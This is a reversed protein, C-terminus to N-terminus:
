IFVISNFQVYLCHKKEGGGQLYPTQFALPAQGVRGTKVADVDHIVVAVGLGVVGRIVVCQGLQWVGLSTTTAAAAVGPTYTPTDCQVGVQLVRVTVLVVLRQAESDGCVAAM